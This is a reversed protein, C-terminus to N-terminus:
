IGTWDRINQAAEGKPPAFYTFYVYRNTAYNPDFEVGLLAKLGEPDQLGPVQVLIRDKGQRVVDGFYCTRANVISATGSVLTSVFHGQVVAM